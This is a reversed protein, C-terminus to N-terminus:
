PGHRRVVAGEPLAAVFARLAVEVRAADKAEFTVEVRHDAEDFRPYSGIDVDPHARAVGDLAAAFHDEGLALFLSAARFPPSALEAAFADLQLRFFEPPGPLMVVNEVAMVPFGPDGALRTGEPVDAMRLAAEPPEGGHRAHWRRINAVLREHRVLPRGLAHAVAALTVDDHTPGVGGATFLWDVRARERAVAEAILELRDPLTLLAELRVGRERLVRIAYPGNQDARKASLVENGVVLVAATLTEM